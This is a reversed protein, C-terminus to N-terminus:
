GDDLYTTGDDFVLCLQRLQQAVERGDLTALYQYMTATTLGGLHSLAQADLGRHNVAAADRVSGHELYDGHDIASQDPASASAM